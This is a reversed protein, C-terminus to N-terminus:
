MLFTSHCQSELIKTLCCMKWQQWQKKTKIKKKNKDPPVDEVAAVAQV